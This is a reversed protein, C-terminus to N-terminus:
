VMRERLAKLQELKTQLTPKEEVERKPSLEQCFVNLPAVRGDLEAEVNCERCNPIEGYGQGFCDDDERIWGQMKERDEQKPHRIIIKSQVEKRTM